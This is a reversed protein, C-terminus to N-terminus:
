TGGLIGGGPPAPSPAGVGTEAGAPTEGEPPAGEEGEPPADEPAPSETEPRMGIANMGPAEGSTTSGTKTKVKEANEERWMQENRSIDDQTWGLYRELAFRKSVYKTAETGMLTSFLNIQEADMGMRRYEGFSEPAFFQLEFLNSQIEIGRHKLFLKFEKDLIPSMLNQLRECYKTFRYEQVFATGMKGDTYVATGDDPGTPLYSSPVGLGRIMKNNFYKLDDIQGLNEGAALNEIRTGKGEANTALFFDENISIPNYAADIVSTGGGTRNPIRRQYIENKIREVYQMARPGSLSGVDIYFVRREPARVIRYILICDELLDKQKYVKYISELISTGFPWQNDMGESLSLHVVHTADVATDQPANNFRSQRSGPSNTQGYALTGAGSAPNGSRPYGGPFSYQDHSLMDSGVLTNLNFDMERIVYQEVSKGKDENVIIKEVKTPDIWILRFTEPDRVYIQDGYKIVNRFMRWLRQRWKNLSCWQRLTETLLKIETESLKGKYSIDFPEDDKDFSQTSFDSITDLARSIESDLDMQEYQVYREIRNPAGSYVEPLYSNYKSASGPKADGDSNWQEMRQQMRAQTPVASFYKKWSAM